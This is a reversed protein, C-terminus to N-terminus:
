NYKIKKMMLLMNKKGIQQYIIEDMIKRIFFSCGEKLNYEELFSTIEQNPALTPNLPFGRDVLLFFLQNAAVAVRLLIEDKEDEPYAHMIINCVVEELAVQLEMTQNAHLSLDQCLEAIFDALPTLQDLTNAIRIEKIM